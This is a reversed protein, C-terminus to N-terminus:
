KNPFIKVPDFSPIIICETNYQMPITNNNTENYTNAHPPPSSTQKKRRYM